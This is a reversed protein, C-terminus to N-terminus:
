VLAGAITDVAGSLSDYSEQYVGRSLGYPDIVDDDASEDRRRNIGEVKATGIM